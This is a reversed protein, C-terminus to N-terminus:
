KNWVDSQPHKCDPICPLRDRSILLTLARLPKARGTHSQVWFWASGYGPTMLGSRYVSGQTHPLYAKDPLVLLLLQVGWGPLQHGGGKVGCEVWVTTLDEEAAQANSTENRGGLVKFTQPPNQWEGPRESWIETQLVLQGKCSNTPRYASLDGVPQRDQSSM